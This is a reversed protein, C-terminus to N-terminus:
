FPYYCWRINYHREAACAAAFGNCPTLDKLHWRSAKRSDGEVSLLKAPDGPSLSVDFTHLPQYLGNGIAKIFAEKRTWCNFFAKKKKSMPLRHFFFKEKESFYRDVIQNMGSIYRIREIDVGVESDRSFAYLALGGSRSLNFYLRGKGFTEALAPKGYQGYCFRMQSAEIGLYCGIIIRLIGRSIIFRKRDIEFHYREARLREDISIKQLLEQFQSACKDLSVCWIHVETNGLKVNAQNTKLAPYDIEMKVIDTLSTYPSNNSDARCKEEHM